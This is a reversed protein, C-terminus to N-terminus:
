SERGQLSIDLIARGRERKRFESMDEGLWDSDPFRCIRSLSVRCCVDIVRWCIGGDGGGTSEDIGIDGARTNVCAHQM